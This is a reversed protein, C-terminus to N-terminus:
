KQNILAVIYLVNEHPIFYYNGSDTKVIIHYENEEQYYGTLQTATQNSTDKTHLKLNVIVKM